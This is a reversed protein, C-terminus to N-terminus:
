NGDSDRYLLERRPLSGAAARRPRRSCRELQKLSVQRFTLSMEVEDRDRVNACVAAQFGGPACHRRHRLRRCNRGNDRYRNGSELRTSRIRARLGCPLVSLTSDPNILWLHAVPSSSALDNPGKTNYRERRDSVQRLMLAIALWLSAQIGPLHRGRRLRHL